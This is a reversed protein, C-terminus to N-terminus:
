CFIMSTSINEKNNLTTHQQTIDNMNRDEAFQHFGSRINNYLDCGCMLWGCMCGGVCVAVWVYLWGCMCGGVCAAVWVYLWGCMCSGM